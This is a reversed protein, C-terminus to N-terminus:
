KLSKNRFKVQGPDVNVWQDQLEGTNTRLKTLIFPIKGHRVSTKNVVEFLGTRPNKVLESVYIKLPEIIENNVIADLYEVNYWNGNFFAQPRTYIEEQKPTFKKVISNYERMVKYFDFPNTINLLKEFVNEGYIDKISEGNWTKSWSKVLTEIAEDGTTIEIDKNGLVKNVQQIAKEYEKRNIDLFNVIHKNLETILYNKINKYVDVSIVRVDKGEYKITTKNNLENIDYLELLNLEKFNYNNLINKRKIQNVLEKITQKNVLQYIKTITREEPTYNSPKNKRLEKIYIEQIKDRKTNLENISKEIEKLGPIFDLKYKKVLRNRETNLQLIYNNLLRSDNYNLPQKNFLNNIKLM